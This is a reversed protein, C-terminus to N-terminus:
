LLVESPFPRKRPRFGDAVALMDAFFVLVWRFRCVDLALRPVLWLRFGLEFRCADAANM